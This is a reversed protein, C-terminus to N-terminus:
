GVVMGTISSLWSKIRLSNTRKGMGSGEECVKKKRKEPRGEMKFWIEDVRKEYRRWIPLLSWHSFCWGASAAGNLVTITVAVDWRRCRSHLLVTLCLLLADRVMYAYWQRINHARTISIFRKGAKDDKDGKPEKTFM